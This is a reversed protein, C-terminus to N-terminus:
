CRTPPSSRLEEGAASIVEGRGKRRSSVCDYPQLVGGLTWGFDVRSSDRWTPQAAHAPQRVLVVGQKRLELEIGGLIEPEPTSITVTHLAQEDLWRLIRGPLFKRDQKQNVAARLTLPEILPM